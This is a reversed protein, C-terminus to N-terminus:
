CKYIYIDRHSTMTYFLSPLSSVLWCPLSSVLWCNYDDVYSTLSFQDPRCFVHCQSQGDQKNLSRAASLASGEETLRSYCSPRTHRAGPTTGGPVHAPRGNAYCGFIHDDTGDNQRLQSKTTSGLARAASCVIIIKGGPITLRLLYTSSLLQKIITLLKGKTQLFHGLRL